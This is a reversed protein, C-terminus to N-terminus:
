LSAEKKNVTTKLKKFFADIREAEDKRDPFLKTGIVLLKASSLDKM